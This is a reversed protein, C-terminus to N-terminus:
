KEAKKGRLQRLKEEYVGRQPDNPNAQAQLVWEALIEEETRGTTEMKNEIIEDIMSKGKEDKIETRIKPYNDNGTETM